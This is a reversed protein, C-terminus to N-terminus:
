WKKKGKVELLSQIPSDDDSIVCISMESSMSSEEESPINQERNTRDVKANKKKKRSANVEGKQDKRQDKKDKRKNKKKIKKRRSKKKKVVKEKKESKTKTARKGSIKRNKKHKQIRIHDLSNDSSKSDSLLIKDSPKQSLANSNKSAVSDSDSSLSEKDLSNFSSKEHSVNQRPQFGRPNTNLQQDVDNNKADLWPKKSIGNLPKSEQELHDTDNNKTIEISASHFLAATDQDMSSDVKSETCSHAEDVDIKKMNKTSDDKDLPNNEHKVHDIGNNKTIKFSSGYFLAAAEQDMSSDSNSESESDAEDCDNKKV